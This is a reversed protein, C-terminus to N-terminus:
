ELRISVSSSESSDIGTGPIPEWGADEKGGTGGAGGEGSSGATGKSSRLAHLERFARSGFSVKLTAIASSGAQSTLHGMSGNKGQILPCGWPLMGLPLKLESRPNWLDLRLCPKAWCHACASSLQPGKVTGHAM